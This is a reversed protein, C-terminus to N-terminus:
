LGYKELTAYYEDRLDELDRGSSWSADIAERVAEPLAKWRAEWAEGEHTWYGVLEYREPPLKLEQRIYKRISRVVKQEGAVWVYGPTPSLPMAKVVDAMRSPAIGNGSRHLWTVTAFEHHPLVQEHEPAAIEIFVRSQVHRPTQELIRALAPIGTADAVLVQWAVDAPPTYLGRPRNIVIEDGPAARQAWESALGGEHVVFDIDIEGSGPRHNRVTYTSCRIRDQGEPYTWRGDETIVPLHLRGTEEHPFFLRLYEDPVGTGPFGALGAGGFTLRIMGPTLAQRALVRATFFM